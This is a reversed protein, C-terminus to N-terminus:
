NVFRCSLPVDYGLVQSIGPVAGELQTTTWDIPFANRKMMDYSVDVEIHNHGLIVQM